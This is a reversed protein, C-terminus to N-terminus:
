NPKSLGLAQRVARDHEGLTPPPAVDHSIEGNFRYPSRISAVDGRTPHKLKSVLDLHIAHPDALFESLSLVPAHPVDNASLRELWVQRPQRAFIEGLISRLDDYHKVRMLHTAFRPDGALSDSAIAELLGTWFKTPSSLHLAVGAGDQCVLAYSQSIAARSQPGPDTGTGFYTSFPEALFHAMSELMSLEVTAAEDKKDRAVLAAVVGLAAYLGTISDAIAPGAVMPHAPDMMLGLMGSYAQAVTDYAPREAYPGDVGFGSIACYVLRPNVQKLREEDIGMRTAVAPRFNHIFVDAQRILSDLLERDGPDHNDITVSKKGRNQSLFTPAYDSGDYARFPDGVGRRELKIVEAGLDALLMSAFPGTIFSGQEVVRIGTLPKM